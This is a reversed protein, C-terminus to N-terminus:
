HATYCIFGLRPSATVEGTMIKCSPSAPNLLNLEVATCAHSLCANECAETTAQRIVDVTHSDKSGYCEAGPHQKLSICESGNNSGKPTCGTIENPVAVSFQASL